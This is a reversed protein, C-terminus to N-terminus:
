GMESWRAKIADIVKEPTFLHKSGDKFSRFEVGNELVRVLKEGSKLKSLQNLPRDDAAKGLSFVQYGGSDTLIPGNWKMFEHLGGFNALIDVGPSLYLHYTNGLIIQSGCAILEDPSLGKVSGATGVPMFVPTKVEGHATVMVGSRAKGDRCVLKFKFDSM